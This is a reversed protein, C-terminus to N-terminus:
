KWKYRGLRLSNDGTGIHEVCKGKRIAGFYFTRSNNIVWDADHTRNPGKIQRNIEWHFDNPCHRRLASLHPRIFKMRWIAPAVYWHHSTTFISGDFDVEKKVFKPKDPLIDRKSFSIQNVPHHDMVNVLFDLDIEKILVYDDEWHIAYDSKVQDILWLFSKCQGLPPSNKKIKTYIGLNKSYEICRESAAENLVDEHLFWRLEGSYKLNKLMSETSEELLEPRSASTRIIDITKM